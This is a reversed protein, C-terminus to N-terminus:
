LRNGKTLFKTMENNIYTLFMKLDRNEQVLKKNEDRLSELAELYINDSM